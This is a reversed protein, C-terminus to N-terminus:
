QQLIRDQRRGTQLQLRRVRFLDDNKRSPVIFQGIDRITVRYRSYQKKETDFIFFDPENNFFELYIKTQNYNVTMRGYRGYKDGPFTEYWIRDNEASNIYWM